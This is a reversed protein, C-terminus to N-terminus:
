KFRRLSTMKDPTNMIVSYRDRADHETVQKKRYRYTYSNPYFYHLSLNEETVQRYLFVGLIMSLSPKLHLQLSWFRIAWDYQRCAKGVTCDKQADSKALKKSLFAFFM